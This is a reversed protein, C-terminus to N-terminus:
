RPRRPEALSLVPKPIRHERSKRSLRRYSLLQSAWWDRDDPDGQIFRQSGLWFREADTVEDGQEDLFERLSPYTVRSMLFDKYSRPEEKTTFYTWDIGLRRAIKGVQELGVSARERKLLRHLYPQAIGMQKAVRSVWREVGAEGGLEEALRVLRSAALEGPEKGMIGLTMAFDNVVPMPKNIDEPM